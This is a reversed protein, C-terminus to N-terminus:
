LSIFSSFLGFVYKFDVFLWDFIKVLTIFLIFISQADLSRHQFVFYWMSDLTHKVWSFWVRLIRKQKDFGCFSHFFVVFYTGMNYERVSLKSKSDNQKVNWQGNAYNNDNDHLSGSCCAQNWTSNMNKHKNQDFQRSHLCKWSNWAIALLNHMWHKRQTLVCISLSRTQFVPAVIQCAHSDISKRVLLRHLKVYGSRM